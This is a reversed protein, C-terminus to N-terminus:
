LMHRESLKMYDLLLNYYLFLLFFFLCRSQMQAAEVPSCDGSRVIPLIFFQEECKSTVSNLKWWYVAPSPNKGLGACETAPGRHYVCQSTYTSHSLEGAPQPTHNQEGTVSPFLWPTSELDNHPKQNRDIGYNPAKTRM